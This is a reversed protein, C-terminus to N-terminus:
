QHKQFQLGRVVISFGVELLPELERRKIQKSGALQLIGNAMGWLVKAAKPPDV